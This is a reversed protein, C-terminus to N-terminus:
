PLACAVKGFWVCVCKHQGWGKPLADEHLLGTAGKAGSWDWHQHKGAPVSPCDHVAPM